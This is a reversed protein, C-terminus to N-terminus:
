KRYFHHGGITAVRTFVRSWKPSVHHAHYWLVGNMDYLTPTKDNLLTYAETYARRWDKDSPPSQRHKDRIYSFQHPQTLVKEITNPYHSSVVRNLIVQGVAYRGSQPEGRAEYVIAEALLECDREMQCARHPESLSQILKVARPTCKTGVQSNFSELGGRFAELPCKQPPPLASVAKIAVVVGFAILDIM